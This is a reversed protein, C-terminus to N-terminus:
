LVHSKLVQLDRLIEENLRRAHNLCEIEKMLRNEFELIKEYRKVKDIGMINEKFEEYESIIDNANKCYENKTETDQNSLFPLDHIDFCDPSIDIVIRRRHKESIKYYKRRRGKKQGSEDFVENMEELIGFSMLERLHRLIAQQGIELDKSIDSLFRPSESILELIERRTKNGLLRLLEFEDVDM